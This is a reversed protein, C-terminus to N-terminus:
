YFACTFDGGLDRTACDFSSSRSLARSARRPVITWGREPSHGVVLPFQNVFQCTAAAIQGRKNVFADGELRFMEVKRICPRMAADNVARRQLQRSASRAKMAGLWGARSGEAINVASTFSLNVIASHSSAPVADNRRPSRGTRDLAAPPPMAGAIKNCVPWLDRSGYDFFSESRRVRGNTVRSTLFFCGADAFNPLDRPLGDSVCNGRTKM